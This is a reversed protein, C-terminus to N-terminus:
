EVEEQIEIYNDLVIELAEEYTKAKITAIEEQNCKLIWNKM